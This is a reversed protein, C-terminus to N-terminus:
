DIEEYDVYEGVDKNTSKTKPPVKDVTIDGEKNTTENPRKYQGFQKEFRQGTKKSVYRFLFPSLLRAVIKIGFYILLLILITRIVGAISAYQLM